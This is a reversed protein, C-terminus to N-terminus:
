GTTPEPSRGIRHSTTLSSRRTRGRVIGRGAALGNGPVRHRALRRRLRRGSLRRGVLSTGRCEVVTGRALCGTVDAALLGLCLLALVAAPQDVLDAVLDVVQTPVPVLVLGASGTVRSPAA